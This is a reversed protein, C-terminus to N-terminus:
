ARRSRARIAARKVLRPKKTVRPLLVAAVVVSGILLGAVFLVYKEYDAKSKMPLSNLSSENRFYIDMNSLELAYEAYVLASYLDTEKLSNAYEYYSYGVIPFVGEKSNRVISRRSTNLKREALKRLGSEEVSLLSLLFDADAKAKSAKALCLEFDGSQLDDYARDIDKRIGSLGAKLFLGAYQYREEAEAIKSNCSAELLSSDLLVKRGGTGLFRSWAEASSLRERAYALAFLAEDVRAESAHRISLNANDVADLLRERVTAYGQVDTVTERKPLKSQFARVDDFVGSASARIEEASLNMLKLRVFEYRVNAGFCFSAASYFEGRSMSVAGKESLNRASSFADEVSSLNWGTAAGFSLSENCLSEALSRMTGAYVPDISINESFREFRHGTFEFLADKLDSVEVVEVGIKKGFEFLDIADDSSNPARYFRTEEPILVKRINQGKAAQIKEKLGGVPGILGGSNITGTIAVGGDIDLGVLVAATLVAAAAGASPGGVLATDARITYFYDYNGCDLALENCAIEKAFRTSIQTDLKTLPFSEIFVKGQGPRVQLFLDATLGEYRDERDAVALLKIHGESYEAFSPQALLLLAAFLLCASRM